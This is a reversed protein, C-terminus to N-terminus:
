GASPSLLPRLRGWMDWLEGLRTARPGLLDILRGLTLDPARAALYEEVLVTTGQWLGDIAAQGAPRRLSRPDHGCYSLALALERIGPARGDRWGGHGDFGYGLQDLSAALQRGAEPTFQGWFPHDAPFSLAQDELARSAIAERLELLLLQLRGAEAGTEEALRLTLGLLTQRDGRMLLTIPAPGAVLSAAAAAQAAAAPAVTGGTTAVAATSFPTSRVPETVARTMQRAADEECAALAHRAELCAVQASEASIRAADAALEIAPLTGHLEAVDHAVEDARRNALDLQRNLRDVESLWAAAADHVATADVAGALAEHYARRAEEKAENLHRRDRVQADAESQRLVEHLRRKTERLRHQHAAAAQGLREAEACRLDVEARAPGCPGSVPLGAAPLTVPPSPAQYDVM